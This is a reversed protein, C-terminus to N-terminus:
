LVQQHAEKSHWADQYWRIMDRIPVTPEYYEMLERLLDVPVESEPLTDSEAEMRDFIALASVHSKIISELVSRTFDAGIGIGRLPLSYNQEYRSPPVNEALRYYQGRAPYAIVEGYGDENREGIFCHLLPYIDVPEGDCTRVRLVSGKALCRVVPGDENWELKRSYDRYINTYRGEIELKNTCGLFHEIERLFDEAKCSPMGDDNLLITDSVCSVDFTKALIEAPTEKECLRAVHLYIEGYGQETLDGMYTAQNQQLAAVIKRISSDSGYITGCFTQGTTLADYIKGDISAIHETEPTTYKIYHSEFEEAFCDTLGVDQEVLKPNKGPALRYRLQKKDLKVVSMCAPVPLLRKGQRSIYANDCRVCEKEEQTLDPVLNMILQRVHAGPIYLYTMDGEEYPAHFCVPTVLLMSYELSSYDMDPSIDVCDALNRDMDMLQLEVEGTIEKSTIGIHKRGNLKQKLGDMYEDPAHVTAYYCMGARLSRVRTGNEKLFRDNVFYSKIFRVFEPSKNLLEIASLSLGRYGDPHAFGIQINGDILGEHRLLGELPIYPLMLNDFPIDCWYGEELKMYSPFAVEGITKIRLYLM